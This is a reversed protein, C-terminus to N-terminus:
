DSFLSENCFAIYLGCHCILGNKYSSLDEASEMKKIAEKYEKCMCKTDETKEIKCPCYGQNKRVSSLVKSNFIEIFVENRKETQESM